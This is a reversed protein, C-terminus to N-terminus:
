PISLATLPANRHIREFASMHRRRRGFDALTIHSHAPCFVNPSVDIVQGFWDIGHPPSFAPPTFKGPPGGSIVNVPQDWGLNLPISVHAGEEAKTWDFGLTKVALKTLDGRWGEVTGDPTRSPIEHVWLELEGIRPILPVKTVRESGDKHILVCDGRRVGFSQLVNNSDAYSIGHPDLELVSVDEIIDTGFWRVSAVREKASVSQVIAVKREGDHKWLVFDGPRDRCYSLTHSLSLVPEGANMNM